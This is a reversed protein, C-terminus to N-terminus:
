EEVSAQVPRKDAHFQSQLSFIMRFRTGVVDGPAGVVLLLEEGDGASSGVILLVGIVDGSAGM